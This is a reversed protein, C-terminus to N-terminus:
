LPYDRCRPRHCASPLMVVHGEVGLAVDDRHGGEPLDVRLVRHGCNVADGEAHAPALGLLRCQKWWVRVDNLSGALGSTGAPLARSADFASYDDVGILVAYGDNILMEEEELGARPEGRPRAQGEIRAPGTTERNCGIVNRAIRRVAGGM